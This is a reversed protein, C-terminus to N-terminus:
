SSVATIGYENLFDDVARCYRDHDVLYSMGHQAEPVSLLVSPTPCAAQLKVSEAYPVLEDAQGHVFFVPRATKKLARRADREKLHFGALVRCWLDVGPLVWRLPKGFFHEAAYSLEEWPSAYGCDDLIATVNAPLDDATMLVSAGGMSIGALLIPLSPFRTQAYECWLRADESEKVGFTIYRGESRGCARQDILLISMDHEGYYRCASAFDRVGNSRYGHCAVLIARAKPHLYLRGRLKLGDRSIIEAEESSHTKLWGMGADMLERYPALLDDTANTLSKTPNFRGSFRRFVLVFTILSALLYLLALAGLVILAPRM